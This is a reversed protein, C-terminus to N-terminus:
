GLSRYTTVLEIVILAQKSDGGRTTYHTVDNSHVRMIKDSVIVPLEILM